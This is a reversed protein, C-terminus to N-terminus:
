HIVPAVVDDNWFGPVVVNGAEDACAKAIIEFAKTLTEISSTSLEIIELAEDKTIKPAKKM